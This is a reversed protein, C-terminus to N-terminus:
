FGLNFCNINGTYLTLYKLNFLKYICKRGLILIRECLKYEKMSSLRIYIKSFHTFPQKSNNQRYERKKLTFTCFLVQIFM